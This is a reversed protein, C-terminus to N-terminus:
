VGIGGAGPSRIGVRVAETAGACMPLFFQEDRCDQGNGYNLSKPPDLSISTLARRDEPKRPTKGNTLARLM